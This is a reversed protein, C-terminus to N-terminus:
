SHCNTCEISKFKYQIYKGKEDLVEKHCEFCKVNAHGGELKFRSTNHDFKIKKWSDIGHCRTCETKGNVDFQGRHTKSKVIWSDLFHCRECDPGLSPQHIDVHCSNCETKANTFMLDNHCNKCSVGQHKGMLPFSTNDHNFSDKNIVISSWNTSIHCVSCNINLKDGHPSSQSFLSVTRFILLIM